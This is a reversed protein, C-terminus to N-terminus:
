KGFFGSLQDLLGGGGQAPQQQGRTFAGILDTLGGIGGAPAAQPQQQAGTFQSLINPLNLGSTGGGSLANFIDQINFGNDSPDNTRRVFKNILMPIVVAAIAGAVKPSIGLRQTIDQIFNGSVQQTVPNSEVDSANSGFLGLVQDAQGSAMMGQLTNLLSGGASQMVQNNYENPVEPNNVVAEQSVQKILNSLEEFM